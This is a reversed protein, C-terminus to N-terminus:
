GGFRAKFPTKKKQETEKRKGKIFSYTFPKMRRIRTSLLSQKPQNSELRLGIMFNNSSASPMTISPSTLLM